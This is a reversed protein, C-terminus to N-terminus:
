YSKFFQPIKLINKLIIARCNGQLGNEKWARYDETTKRVINGVSRNSIGGARMNILVEPIYLTSIKNKELFRLMLEYDAAIKFSTNFKGYKMYVDRRVFFTPHPPMWGRYFLGETYPSSRWHRIIKEPDNKSVYQLDGYCSDAGSEQMRSVVKNVVTSDEYFDDAHMLGIVDGTARDIGKNLADYIGNDPESILTAIRDKYKQLIELTGDTSGGDIVIHEIDKYTQICVSQLCHEINDGRDKVATIISVKVNLNRGAGELQDAKKLFLGKKVRNLGHTYIM